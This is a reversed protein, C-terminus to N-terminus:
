SYPSNIFAQLTEVGKERGMIAVALGMAPFALHLRARNGSDAKEWTSLLSTTFGGPQWGEAYGYHGLIHRSESLVEAWGDGFPDVENMRRIQTQLHGLNEQLVPDYDGPTDRVLQSLQHLNFRDDSATNSHSDTYSIRFHGASRAPTVTVTRGASINRGQETDEDYLRIEQTTVTTYPQM